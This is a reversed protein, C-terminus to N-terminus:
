YAWGENTLGPIFLSSVYYSSGCVFCFSYDCKGCVMHDCGVSKEIPIRCSPCPKTNAEKYNETGVDLLPKLNCFTEGEHLEWSKGCKVCSVKKCVLCEIQDSQTDIYNGGSCSHYACPSWCRDAKLCTQLLMHDYKEAIESNNGFLTIITELNYSARCNHAM